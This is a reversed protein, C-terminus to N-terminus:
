TGIAFLQVHVVTQVGPARAVSMATYATGASFLCMFGDVSVAQAAFGPWTLKVTLPNPAAPVGNPYGPSPPIGVSSVAKVVILNAGPLAGFSIPVDGDATLVLEEEKRASCPLSELVDSLWSSSASWDANPILPTYRIRGSLQATGSITM